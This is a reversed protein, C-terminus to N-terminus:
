PRDFTVITDTYINKDTMTNLFFTVIFTQMNWSHWYKKSFQRKIQRARSSSLRHPIDHGPSPSYFHRWYIISYNGTRNPDCNKDDYTPTYDFKCFPSKNWLCISVSVVFNTTVFDYESVISSTSAKSFHILIRRVYIQALKANYNKIQVSETKM